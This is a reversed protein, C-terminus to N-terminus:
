IHQKGVGMKTRAAQWLSLLGEKLSTASIVKKNESKLRCFANVFAGFPCNYHTVDSGLFAEVEQCNDSLIQGHHTSGCNRHHDDCVLAVDLRLRNDVRWAQLYKLWLIYKFM